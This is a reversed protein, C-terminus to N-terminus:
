RSEDRGMGHDRAEMQIRSEDTDFTFRAGHAADTLVMTHDGFQIRVGAHATGRVVIEAKVLLRAGERELENQAQQLRDSTWVAARTLKAGKAGATLALKAGRRRVRQDDQHLVVLEARRDELDAVSLLTPAGNESGADRVTIRLRARLEGGVVHGRGKDLTITEGRLRCHMAHDLIKLTGGATM